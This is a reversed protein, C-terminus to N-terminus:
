AATHGGDPTLDISRPVSGTTVTGIVANSITHIVKVNSGNLAQNTVYLRRGDPAIAM